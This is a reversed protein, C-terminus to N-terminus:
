GSEGELGWRHLYAACWFKESDAYGTRYFVGPKKMDGELSNHASSSKLNQAGLTRLYKIISGRLSRM